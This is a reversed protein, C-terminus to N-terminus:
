NHKIHGSLHSVFDGLKERYIELNYTSKWFVKDYFGPDNSVTFSSEKGCNELVTNAILRDQWEQLNYGFFIFGMKKFTKIIYDPIMTELKRSFAFFDNELILLPTSETSREPSRRDELKFYGCIKYIISYGNELLKFGSIEEAAFPGQSGSEEHYKLMMREFLEDEFCHYLVVFKKEKARFVRELLDDYSSSIVLIPKSVEGLLDYLTNSCGTQKEEIMMEKIKGVIMGRSFKKESKCYQSLMPLTGCFGPCDVKKAMKKVMEPSSPVPFGSLRLVESGLFPIIEGRNLRDALTEYGPSRDQQKQQVTEACTYWHRNFEGPLMTGDILKKVLEICRETEDDPINGGTKDLYNTVDSFVQKGLVDLKSSLQTKLEVFNNHNTKNPVIPVDSTQRQFLRGEQVRLFLVPTAFDRSGYGKPGLAVQLRAEQCAKDVPDDKTIRRYFELAFKQATCNQIEFQMAAVAPVDRIVVKSAVGVLANSRSLSGSECSQLVVLGPRHRNFLESFDDASVWEANGMDGVLAVQGSEQQNEDKLRGHGIFHFIHPKFDELTNDITRRNAREVLKLPEFWETESLKNIEAVIRSYRITGLDEPAAVALAIRLREGNKLKIPPPIKGVVRTRTFVINPDTALRISGGDLESPAHMFEWPLSAIQPYSKEDVDLEIRLLMRNDRTKRYIESFKRRLNEDFLAIFLLKGLEGLAHNSLANKLAANHLEVIKSRNPEEFEFDGWYDEVNNNLDHFNFRVRRDSVVLIHLVCYQQAM